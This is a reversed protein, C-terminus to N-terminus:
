LLYKGDVNAFRRDNVQLQFDPRKAFHDLDRARGAFELSLRGGYLGQNRGRLDGLRGAGILGVAQGHNGIERRSSVHHVVHEMHTAAM